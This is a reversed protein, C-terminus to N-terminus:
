NLFNTAAAFNGIKWEIMHFLSFCKRKYGFSRFFSRFDGLKQYKCVGLDFIKGEAYGWILYTDKKCIGSIFKKVLIIKKQTPKLM